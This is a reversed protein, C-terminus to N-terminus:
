DLLPISPLRSIDDVVEEESEDAEGGSSDDEEFRMDHVMDPWSHGDYVFPSVFEYVTAFQDLRRRLARRGVSASDSYWDNPDFNSCIVIRNSRFQSSGGKYQVRFEYRDLFKLFKQLPIQCAFEDFITTDQGDYKEFWWTAGKTEPSAIVYADPWRRHACYSKGTGTEGWYVVVEPEEKRPETITEKLALIGNHGKLFAMPHSLAIDKMSAGAMIDDVLDVSMTSRSPTGFEIYQYDNGPLASDDKQCYAIAEAQTGRRAEFHVAPSFMKKLAALSLPRYLELYGQLHPTGSAGVETQAVLYRVTDKAELNELLVVDFDDYNNWTFCVTRARMFPMSFDCPPGFQRAEWLFWHM